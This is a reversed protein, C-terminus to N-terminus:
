NPFAKKFNLFWRKEKYKLKKIIKYKTERKKRGGNRGRM